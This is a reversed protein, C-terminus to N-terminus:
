SIESLMLDKGSITRIDRNIVNIDSHNALYTQAASIIKINANRLGVSLGGGAFIDVATLLPEKIIIKKM